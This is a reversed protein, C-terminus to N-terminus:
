AHVADIVDCLRQFVDEFSGQGDVVTLLGQTKYHALLPATEHEYASLREAIAEVTDDARQVVTGDCNTCTRPGPPPDASYVWGCDACVRRLSLRAIVVDTPVDLLICRAIGATGAISELAEAQSQTRPYGDLIAGKATDPEALRAAVVDTILEDPVLHGEDMLESVKRGLESESRVAARLMDGTAVHPVGYREALRACQTGKGAGQKGLIVILGVGVM